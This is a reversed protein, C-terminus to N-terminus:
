GESRAADLQSKAREAFTRTGQLEWDDIDAVAAAQIATPALSTMCRLSGTDDREARMAAMPLARYEGGLDLGGGSGIVAYAVTFNNPDLVLEQISALREGEADLLM